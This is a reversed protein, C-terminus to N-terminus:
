KGVWYALVAVQYEVWPQIQYITQEVLRGLSPDMVLMQQVLPWQQRFTLRSVTGTSVFPGWDGLAAAPVVDALWVLEQGMIFAEVAGSNISDAVKGAQEMDAGMGLASEYARDRDAPSYAALGQQMLRTGVFRMCQVMPQDAALLKSNNRVFTMLEQPETQEKIPNLTWYLAGVNRATTEDCPSTAQPVQASATPLAGLALLSVLTALLAKRM